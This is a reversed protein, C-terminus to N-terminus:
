TAEYQVQENTQGGGASQFILPCCDLVTRGLVCGRHDARWTAEFLDRLTALGQNKEDTFHPFYYGKVQM